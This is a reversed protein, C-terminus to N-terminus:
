QINGLLHEGFRVQRLKETGPIKNGNLNEAGKLEERLRQRIERFDAARYRCVEMSKKALRNYEKIGIITQALRLGAGPYSHAWVHCEACMGLVADPDFATANNRRSFIHHGCTSPEGCRVCSPYKTVAIVQVLRYCEREVSSKM